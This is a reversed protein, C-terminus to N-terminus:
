RQFYELLGLIFRHMRGDKYDSVYEQNHHCQAKSLERLLTSSWEEHLSIRDASDMRNQAPAIM